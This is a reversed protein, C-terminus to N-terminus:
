HGAFYHAVDDGYARRLAVCLGARELAEDLPRKVGELGSIAPVFFARADDRAAASCMAGAVEVLMAGGFSGPFRTRLQTWRQKQWGYVIDYTERRRVAEGLVYRIESLKVEEPLLVVDLADRLVFPDDFMGMSR